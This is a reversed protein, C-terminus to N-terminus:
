KVQDRFGWMLEQSITQISYAEFETSPSREGINDCMEQWIHVAEHVLLGAVEIGTRDDVKICVIIITKGDKTFFHTTAHSRENLVFHPWDQQKIQLRVLEKHFIKETTCLAYHFPCTMLRRDRWISKSM